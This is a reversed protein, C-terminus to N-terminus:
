SHLCRLIIMISSVLALMKVELTTVWPVVCMIVIPFIVILRLLFPNHRIQIFEKRILYKLIM